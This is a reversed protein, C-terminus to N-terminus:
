DCNAKNKLTKPCALEIAKLMRAKWRREDENHTPFLSVARPWNIGTKEAAECITKIKELEEATLTNPTM